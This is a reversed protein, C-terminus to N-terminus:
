AVEGAARGAGIGVRRPVVHCRATAETIGHVAVALMGIAREVRGAGWLLPGELYKKGWKRNQIKHRQRPGRSEVHARATLDKKSCFHLLFIMKANNDEAGRNNGASFMPTTMVPVVM